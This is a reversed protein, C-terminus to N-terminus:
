KLGLWDIKTGLNNESIFANAKSFHQCRLFPNSEEPPNFSPHTSKLVLHNSGIWRSIEKASSGWLLFAAQRLKNSLLYIIARSFHEWGIDSHGKSFKEFNSSTTFKRNILLVGQPPLHELCGNDPMIGGVDNIIAQFINKVSFAMPVSKPNSFPLGTAHFSNPYPYHGVIVVRVDKVSILKFPRLFEKRPPHFDFCQNALYNDIKTIADIGSTSALYPALLEKWDDNLKRLELSLM